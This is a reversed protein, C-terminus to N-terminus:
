CLLECHPTILQSALLRKHLVICYSLTILLLLLKADLCDHLLCEPDSSELCVASLRGWAELSLQGWFLRPFFKREIGSRSKSKTQAAYNSIISQNCGEFCLISLQM